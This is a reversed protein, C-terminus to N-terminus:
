TGPHRHHCRGKITGEGTALFASGLEVRQHARCAMM